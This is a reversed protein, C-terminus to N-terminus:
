SASPIAEPQLTDRGPLELGQQAAVINLGQDREQTPEAAKVLSSIVCSSIEETGGKAPGVTVRYSVFDM